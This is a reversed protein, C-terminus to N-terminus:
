PNLKSHLKRTLAVVTRSLAVVIAVLMIITTIVAGDVLISTNRSNDHDGRFDSGQGALGCGSGPYGNKLCSLVLIRGEDRSSLLM